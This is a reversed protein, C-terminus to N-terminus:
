LLDNSKSTPDHMQNSMLADLASWTNHIAAQQFIDLPQEDDDFYCSTVYCANDRSIYFGDIARLYDSHWEPACSPETDVYADHYGDITQQRHRKRIPTHALVYRQMKPGANQLSPIDLLDKIDDYVTKMETDRLIDKVRSSFVNSNVYDYASRAIEYMKRNTRSAIGSLREFGEEIYEQIGRSMKPTYLNNWASDAVDYLKIAM